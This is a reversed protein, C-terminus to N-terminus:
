ATTAKFRRNAYGIGGLILVAAGFLPAASPLPVVSMLFAENGTFTGFIPGDGSFYTLSFFNLGALNYPSNYQDIQEYTTYFNAYFSYGAHQFPVDYDFGGGPLVVDKYEIYVFFPDYILVSTEIARHTQGNVDYVVSHTDQGSYKFSANEDTFVSFDLGPYYTYGISNLDLRGKGNSTDGKFSITTGGDNTVLGSSAQFSIEGAEARQAGGLACAMAAALAVGATKTKM